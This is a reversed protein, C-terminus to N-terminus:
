GKIKQIGSKSKEKKEENVIENKLWGWEDLTKIIELNTEHITMNQNDIIKDFQEYNDLAKESAHTDGYPNRTLRIVKGNAKHICEVENEFRCDDVLALLPSEINISNILADTWINEYISRCINTGFYQLFERCTMPGSKKRKSMGPMKEWLLHQQIQNKQEEPGYVYQKPINFLETAIVKLPEAFSYSKIYPWMHYAAWESFDQDKRSINVEVWMTNEKGDEIIDTNVFLKGVDSILFNNIVNFARLQYGHLFNSSTTKGSQKRGSFGLIKTTM